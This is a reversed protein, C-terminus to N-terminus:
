DPDCVPTIPSFLWDTFQGCTSINKVIDDQNILTLGIFIMPWIFPVTIMFYLGAFIDVPQYQFKNQFDVFFMNSVVFTVLLGITLYPIAVAAVSVVIM